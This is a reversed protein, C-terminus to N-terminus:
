SWFRLHALFGFLSSDILYGVIILITIAAAIISYTPLISFYDLGVSFLSLVVTAGLWWWLGKIMARGTEEEDDPTQFVTVLIFICFGAIANVIIAFPMSPALHGLYKSPFTLIAFALAGFALATFIGSVFLWFIRVDETGDQGIMPKPKQLAPMKGASPM